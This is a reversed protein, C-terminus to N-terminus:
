SRGKGIQMGATRNRGISLEQHEAGAADPSGADSQSRRRPENSACRKAPVSPAVDGTHDGSPLDIAKM